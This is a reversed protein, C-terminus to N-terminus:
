VSETRLLFAPPNSDRCEERTTPAVLPWSHNLRGTAPDDWVTHPHLQLQEQVIAQLQGCEVSTSSRCVRHFNVAVFTAVFGFSADEQAALQKRCCQYHKYLPNLCVGHSSGDSDIVELHSTVDPNEQWGDGCDPKNSCSTWKFMNCVPATPSDYGLRLGTLITGGPGVSDIYIAHPLDWSANTAHEVMMTLPTQWYYNSLQSIDMIHLPCWQHMGPVRFFNSCNERSQQTNAFPNFLMDIQDGLSGSNSQALSLLNFHGRAKHAKKLNTGNAFNGYMKQQFCPINDVGFGLDNSIGFGDGPCSNIARTSSNTFEAYDSAFIVVRQNAAVLSRLPTDALSSKTTDFLLGDFLKEIQQWLAQKQALTVGGYQDNGTKCEGGHKSLWLIIVEQPHKDLWARVQTLYVLVQSHSQLLHLSHWDRSDHEYMIRCDFFRIGGELQQTV